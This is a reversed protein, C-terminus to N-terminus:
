QKPIDSLSAIEIGGTMADMISKQGLEGVTWTHQIAGHAEIVVFSIHLQGDEDKVASTGKSPQIIEKIIPVQMQEPPPGHGEPPVPPKGRGGNEASM